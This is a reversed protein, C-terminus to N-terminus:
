EMTKVRRTATGAPAGYVGKAKFPKEVTAYLRGLVSANEVFHDMQLAGM